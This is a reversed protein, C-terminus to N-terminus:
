GEPRGARRLPGLARRALTVAEGLASRSLVERYLDLYRDTMAAFSFDALARARASEGLRARLAADAGLKILAGALAGPDDVPVLLADRDNTCLEPVGGVPTAVIALSHTMAELVSLPLGETRSPLLFVDSAALLDPVDTRFGLFRVEDRGLGLEGALREVSAQEPGDGVFLVTMAAGRARLEAMARVVIDQAKLPVFRAVHIAVPGEGLGLEARVAARSRRPREVQIGNHLVRVEPLVTHALSRRATDRSVAVAVDTFYWEFARPVRSIQAHDTMVVRGGGLLRCLVAYHLSTTNHAHIIDPRLPAMVTLSRLIRERKIPRDLVVAPVGRVMADEALPGPKIAVVRADHGRQRQAECLRIVFHEMGGNLLSSVVHVIRLKEPPTRTSM